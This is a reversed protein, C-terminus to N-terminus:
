NKIASDEYQKNQRAIKDAMTEVPKTEEPQTVSTQEQATTETANVNQNLENNQNDM